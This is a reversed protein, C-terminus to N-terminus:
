DIIGHKIAYHILKADSDMNMKELIRSRHTSVTTPAVSLEKAITQLKTGSAIMCFIQFERDSLTEHLIEATKRGLDSVLLEALAPSVYKGGQAITRIAEILQRPASTKPLYGSAGAKLLRIGFQDESHTSLILVPLKPFSSKLQLLVDWGNKGPMEIDLLVLDLKLKGIKELAENGDEAEDVVVIDSTKAIIQILGQRVVAHDDAILVKIKNSNSQDM